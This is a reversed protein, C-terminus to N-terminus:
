DMREIEQKHNLIDAGLKRNWGGAAEARGDHIRVRQFWVGLDARKQTAKTMTSRVAISFYHSCSPGGMQERMPSKEM